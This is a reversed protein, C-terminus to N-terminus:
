LNEKRDEMLEEFSDYGLMEAIYDDEFWVFDNIETETVYEDFCELMYNEITEFDDYDLYKAVDVAGGWFEFDCLDIENYVKLM